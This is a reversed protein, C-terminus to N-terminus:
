AKAKTRFYMLTLLLVCDGTHLFFVIVFVCICRCRLGCVACRVGCEVCWVGCVVRRVGCVVRRVGCVAVGFRLGCCRM